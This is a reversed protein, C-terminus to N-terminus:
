GVWRIDRLDIKINNDRRRKLKRLLKREEAKLLLLRYANKKEGHM